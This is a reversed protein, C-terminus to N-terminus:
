RRNGSPPMATTCSGPPPLPAQGGGASYGNLRMPSPNHQIVPNDSDPMLGGPAQNGHESRFPPIAGAPAQGAPLNGTANRRVPTRDAEYAM